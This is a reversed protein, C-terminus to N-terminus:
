PKSKTSPNTSNHDEVNGLCLGHDAIRGGNPSKKIVLCQERPSM